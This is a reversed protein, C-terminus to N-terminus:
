NIKIYDGDETITLKHNLLKSLYAESFRILDFEGMLSKIEDPVEDKHEKYYDFIIKMDSDLSSRFYCADEGKSIKDKLDLLNLRMDDEVYYSNKNYTEVKADPHSKLYNVAEEYRSQYFKYQGLVIDRIMKSQKSSKALVLQYENHLDEFNIIKNRNLRKIFNLENKQFVKDGANLYESLEVLTNESMLDKIVKAIPYYKKM